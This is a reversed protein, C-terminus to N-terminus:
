ALAVGADGELVPCQASETAVGMSSQFVSDIPAPRHLLFGQAYDVGLEGLRVLTEPKDGFEAITEIGMVRAVDVFYRVTVANLPDVVLNHIFQGEIKLYDVALTKLYGFSSSGAGFDDLAIRV